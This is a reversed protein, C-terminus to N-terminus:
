RRATRASWGACRSSSSCTCKATAFFTGAVSVVVLLLPAMSLLSYYALAAALPFADDEFM